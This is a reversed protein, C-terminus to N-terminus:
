CNVLKGLAVDGSSAGINCEGDSPSEQECEAAPTKDTSTTQLCEVNVPVQNPYVCVCVCM